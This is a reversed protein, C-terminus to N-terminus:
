LPNYLIINPNYHFKPFFFTSVVIRYKKPNIHPKYPYYLAQIPMISVVVHYSQILVIDTAM